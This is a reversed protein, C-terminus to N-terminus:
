TSPPRDSPRRECWFATAEAKQRRIWVMWAPHVSFFLLRCAEHQLDAFDSVRRTVWQRAERLASRFPRDYMARHREACQSICSGRQLADGGIFRDVAAATVIRQFRSSRHPEGVQHRGPWRIAAVSDCERVLGGRRLQFALYVGLTRRCVRRSFLL